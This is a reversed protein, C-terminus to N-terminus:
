ELDIFPTYIVRTNQNNSQKSINVIKLVDDQQHKITIKFRYNDGKKLIFAQTPGLVIMNQKILKEKLLYAEQYTQLYGNGVVLIQSMEVFPPYKAIKRVNLAQNYFYMYDKKLSEIVYNNLNYGQIIAKGPKHRGSRGILQELLTYSIEDANYNTLKLDQDAMIVASLTVDPFDFGKAIMQTGVLIDGDRKLFQHWLLEHRGKKTTTTQDMQVIKANRFHKKLEGIVNEIAIGRPSLAKSGCSKCDQQYEEHYGCYHCKLDNDEQYYTLSVNCSPCTPVYGCVRCMVFPAYGKRNILIIAQEKAKLTKNLEELLTRSLISPHGEKLEAKMDVMIVEPKEKNIAREPLELLVLQNHRAEYMTKIKPTASAFVVPCNHFKSRLKVIESTEYIVDDTQTYSTDQEEDMIIIGINELPAFVSSRTGLIIKADGNYISQYQDYKEGASLRSHLIAINDFNSKLRKAVQSIMNIEPVLILAQKGSKVVENVANIYVETKGSGTVGFLLFLTNTNLKSVISNVALRQEDNLEIKIDETDFFHKIERKITVIERTIVENKELTNLVSPTTIELLKSRLVLENGLFLAIVEQYNGIRQYYNNHNYRYAIVSKPKVKPALTTVIKIKKDQELKKLQRFNKLDNKTLIWENNLDFHSVLENDSADILVAKKQYHHMFESPIITELIASKLSTTHNKIYEYIMFLEENIIPVPDILELIEKTASQSNDIIDVIYGIRNMNGFSVLVRSGIQVLETLDNPVIYDYTQDIQNVKLDIIVSVFM